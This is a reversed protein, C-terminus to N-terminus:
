TKGENEEGALDGSIEFSFEYEEGQSNFDLLNEIMVARLRFSVEPEEM